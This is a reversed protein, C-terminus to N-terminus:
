RGSSTVTLPLALFDIVSVDLVGPQVVQVREGVVGTGTHQVRVPPDGLTTRVAPGSGGNAHGGTGGLWEIILLPQEQPVAVLGAVLDASRGATGRRGRRDDVQEVRLEDPRRLHVQDCGVHQQEPGVRGAARSPRRTRCAMANALFVV